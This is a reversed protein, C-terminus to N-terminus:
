VVEADREARRSVARTGYSTIEGAVDVNDKVAVPVGLLPGSASRQLRTQADRAEALAADARVVTFAQLVPDLEAIRDLFLQVLQPSSIECDRLLRAQEFAGSFAGDVACM